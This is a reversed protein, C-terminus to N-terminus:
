GEQTMEQELSVDSISSFSEEQEAEKSVGKTISDKRNKTQERQHNFTTTPAIRHSNLVFSADLCLSNDKMVVDVPQLRFTSSNHKDQTRATLKLSDLSSTM